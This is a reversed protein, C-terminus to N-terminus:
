QLTPYLPATFLKSSYICVVKLLRTHFGRWVLKGTLQHQKVARWHSWLIGTFTFTLLIWRTDKIPPILLQWIAMYHIWIQATLSSKHINSEGARILWETRRSECPSTVIKKRKGLVRPFFITVLGQAPSPVVALCHTTPPEPNQNYDISLFLFFCCKKNFLVITNRHKKENAIDNNIWNSIVHHVTFANRLMHTINSVISASM